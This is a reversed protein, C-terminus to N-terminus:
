GWPPNSPPPCPEPWLEPICGCPSAYGGDVTVLEAHDLDETTDKDDKMETEKTPREHVRREVACRASIVDFRAAIPCATPCGHKPM